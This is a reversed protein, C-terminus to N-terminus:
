PKNGDTQNRPFCGGVEVTEPWEEYINTEKNNVAKKEFPSKNGTGARGAFVWNDRVKVSKILSSGMGVFIERMEKTMKATVDDFSAVLVIMGSKIEKLFALIDEKHGIKMNLFGSKEVDGNEGNVVVINLGPGVNNLLHAMIIKGNFCIKPGVVNAAGSRIHIAFHDPPCVRSLGCKPVSEQLSMTFTDTKLEPKIQDLHSFGLIHKTKEQVDFVNISIGWTILSVVIIAGFHLIARYRM